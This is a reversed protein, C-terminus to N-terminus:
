IIKHKMILEILEKNTNKKPYDINHEELIKILDEKKTRNLQSKSTNIKSTDQNSDEIIDSSSQSNILNNSSKKKIKDNTNTTLSYSFTKDVNEQSYYLINNKLINKITDDDDDSYNFKKKNNKMIPEWYNQHNALLITDINPNMVDNKYVVYIEELEQDFNFIIININLIDVVYQIIIIDPNLKFYERFDNKDYKKLFNSIKKNHNDLLNNKYETILSLDDSNTLYDDNLLTLISTWFSINNKNKDFTLVGYRYFENTLISKFKNFFNYNNNHKETIFINKEKSLYKLILEYTIEEM